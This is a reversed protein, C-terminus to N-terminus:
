QISIGNKFKIVNAQPFSGLLSQRIYTEALEATEFDGILYIYQNSSNKYEFVKSVTNFVTDTRRLKTPNSLIKIKYGSYKLPLTYFKNFVEATNDTQNTVDKVEIWQNEAKKAVDKQIADPLTEGEKIEIVEQNQIEVLMQEMKEERIIDALTKNKFPDEMFGLLKLETRRNLQHEEESCTVGNKCRNLVVTEGYGKATLRTTQISGKGFIYDVASKARKESLDLNYDDNGRSDTHSGLEMILSPNEKLLAIVKNLEVAADPRIDWKNYDYYINEIQFSSNLKLEQLEINALITGMTNKETLNDTVEPQVNSLGDFCMICGKVNIYAELRKNFFGEKRILITYHNGPIFNFNFNTNPYSDLVLEEKELTNNYIEIRAGSIGETNMGTEIRRAALTVDFLYGPKRTLETKLFVKNDLTTTNFTQSKIEFNDKYAYLTFDQNSPIKITFFGEKNTVAVAVTDANKDLISLYVEGLYGRNDKEYVYGEVNVQAIIAQLFLLVIGITTSIKRIM